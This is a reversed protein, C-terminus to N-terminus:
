AQSTPVVVGVARAVEDVRQRFSRWKPSGALLLCAGDSTSDSPSHLKLFPNSVSHYYVMHLAKFVTTMETDRIVADTLALALVIKVRLPTIYGYVAVEEMAYLLGLYCETSKTTSNVREEIVDLSTHAIYHYKLDDDQTFTRIQPAM